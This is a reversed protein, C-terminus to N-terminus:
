FLTYFINSPHHSLGCDPSMSRCCSDPVRHPQLAPPGKHWRSGEWDEFRIAGCCKFDHQVSDIAATRAEDVSYSEVFTRNLNQNLEGEVHGQYVYALVGVLAELLFILLLLFTYKSPRVTIGGSHYDVYM